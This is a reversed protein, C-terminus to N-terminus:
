EEPRTIRANRFTDFEANWGPPVFLTSGAYEVIAPGEFRHGPALDVHRYVPANASTEPTIMIKRRGAPKPGGSSAPYTPWGITPMIGVAKLRLSVLQVTRQPLNYGYVRKHEAHFRQALREVEAGDIAAQPLPLYLEYNQGQYRLDAGALFRLSQVGAGESALLSKGDELMEALERALRDPDVGELAAVRTRVLDHRIDAALMGMASVNGPAPPVLVSRMGLEEALRLGHLPGAGGFPLLTFDRPDVGRQVSILKIANVMLAEAISLVGLAARQIPIDLAAAITNLANSALDPRLARKGALFYEANLRGAILNADTVTPETGGQGYCAPGPQAGASRPGIRLAGGADLWAISGGGAGITVLDLMPLLVPYVGLKGRTTFLPTGDAILTVDASTGGMDLTIVNELGCANAIRAGGVIGGMPGSHTIAAPLSKAGAFTTIGGNSRMIYPTGPVTEQELAAALGDLHRSLSRKVFANLATTSMREYERFERVVESSLSVDMGPCVEAAIAGIRREHVPNAYSNLLCVAVSRVGAAHLSELCERVAREDLPVLIEGTHSVREAVSMRLKRPVLARAPRWHIDYVNPKRSARGISLVDRFGETAILGVPVDSEEVILNTVLTTGYVFREVDAPRSGAQALAERVGNLIGVTLDSPTTPVKLTIMKGSGDDILVVDTHTGGTDIGIRLPRRGPDGPTAPANM